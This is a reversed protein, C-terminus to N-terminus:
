HTSEHQEVDRKTLKRTKLIRKSRQFNMPLYQSYENEKKSEVEELMNLHYTDFTVGKLFYSKYESPFPTIKSQIKEMKIHM